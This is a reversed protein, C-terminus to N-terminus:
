AMQLGSVMGWLGHRSVADGVIVIGGPGEWSRIFTPTPM